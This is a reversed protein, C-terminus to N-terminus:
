KWARGLRVPQSAPPPPPAPPVLPWLIISSKQTRVALRAVCYRGRSVPRNWGWVGVFVFVCVCVGVRVVLGAGSGSQISLAEAQRPTHGWSEAVRWTSGDCYHVGRGRSGEGWWVPERVFFCFVCVCVCVCEWVCFVSGHMGWPKARLSGVDPKTKSLDRGM